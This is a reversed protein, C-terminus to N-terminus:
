ETQKSEEHLCADYADYESTTLRPMCIKGRGGENQPEPLDLAVQYVKQGRGALRPVPVDDDDSQHRRLHQNRNQTACQGDDVHWSSM